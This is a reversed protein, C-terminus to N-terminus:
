RSVNAPVAHIVRDYEFYVSFNAYDWRTIPPDGVAQHRTQPQGFRSEVTAMSMGRTPRQDRTSQAQQIENLLLTDAAAPTLSGIALAAALLQLVKM